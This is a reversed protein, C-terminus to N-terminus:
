FTKLWNKNEIIFQWQGRYRALRGHGSLPTDKSLSFLRERTKPDFSYLGLQHGQALLTLPKNRSIIGEFRFVQGYSSPKLSDPKWEVAEQKASAYEVRRPTSEVEEFTNAERPNSPEMSFRAVLPFHDSAGFGDLDNSWELPVESGTVANLGSFKAVV